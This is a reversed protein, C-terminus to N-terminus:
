MPQITSNKSLRPNKQPGSAIRPDRSIFQRPKGIARPGSNQRPRPRTSAGSRAPHQESGSAGLRSLDPEAGEPVECAGLGTTRGPRSGGTAPDAAGLKGAAGTSGHRGNTKPIMSMAAARPRPGFHPALHSESSHVPCKLRTLTKVACPVSLPQFSRRVLWAITQFRAGSRIQRFTRVLTLGSVFSYINDELAHDHRSRM